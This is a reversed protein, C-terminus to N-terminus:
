PGSGPGPPGPPASARSPTTPPPTTSRAGTASSPRSAASCSRSRLANPLAGAGRAPDGRRDVKTGYVRQFSETTKEAILRDEIVGAAYVVGDLRGHEAHIEKVAQLAADQDRVDVSHYRAPSGLAKLEALTATIERQALLLETERNIEAPTLGGRGALAARLENRTRATATAADEPGQRHPRGASCNSGAAPPPPSHPPSGRPSAGRGASWCSWPTATWDSPPPRPPATGPRVPAPPVSRVWRPRSSSLDTAGPPPECSSRPRPRLRAARRATRRRCRRCGHRRRRPRRDARGDGPVGPRGHPLPRAARGVESETGDTGRETAGSPSCGARAPALAAQFVPFAEPLVPPRTAALPDLYLVGDVPGDAETSCISRASCSPTPATGPSGRWSRGPWRAATTTVSSRRVAKRGTRRRPRRRPGPRGDQQELLVPLLQFRKPAEGM